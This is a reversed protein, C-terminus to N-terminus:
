YTVVRKRAVRGERAVAPGRVVTRGPAATAPSGSRDLKSRAAAVADEVAAATAAPVAIWQPDSWAVLQLGALLPEIARQAQGWSVTGGAGAQAALAALRVRVVRAVCQDDCMFNVGHPDFATSRLLFLALGALSANDRGFRWARKRM